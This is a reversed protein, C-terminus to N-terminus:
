KMKKNKLFFRTLRINDLNPSHRCLFIATTQESIRKFFMFNCQSCFYFKKGKINTDGHMVLVVIYGVLLICCSKRKNIKKFDARCTEPSLNAWGWSCKKVTHVAKPVICRCQQRGTYRPVPRCCHRHMTGFATCVTLFHEQPHAFKDGSVHLASKLFLVLRFLQQM